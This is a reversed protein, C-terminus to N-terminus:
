ESVEKLIGLLEKVEVKRLQDIVEGSSIVKNEIYEIAKDIVREQQECRRLYEAVIHVEEDYFRDYGTEQLVALITRWAQKEKITM